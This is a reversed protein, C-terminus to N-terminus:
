SSAAYVDRNGVVGAYIRPDVDGSLGFELFDATLLVAGRKRSSRVAPVMLLLELQEPEAKTAESLEADMRM